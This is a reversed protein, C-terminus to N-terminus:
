HAQLRLVLRLMGMLFFIGLLWKWRAFRNYRYPLYDRIAIREEPKTVEMMPLGGQKFLERLKRTRAPVIRRAHWKVPLLHVPSGAGGAQYQYRGTVEALAVESRAPLPVAIIDEPEIRGYITWVRELRRTITEPPEEPHLTQLLRRCEGASKVMSLDPLHDFPLPLHTREAIAEQEAETLKLHLVWISM